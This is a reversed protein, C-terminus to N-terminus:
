INLNPPNHNNIVNYINISTDTDFVIESLNVINEIYKLNLKRLLKKYNKINFFNNNILSEISIIEYDVKNFGDRHYKKTNKDLELMKLNHNYYEHNNKTTKHYLEKWSFDKRKINIKKKSCRVMLSDDESGWGWFNNGYGNIKVYDHKLFIWCGGSFGKYNNENMQQKKAKFYSNNKILNGTISYKYCNEDLCFYDVDHIIIYDVKNFLIDVGINLMLGRNFPKSDDQNVIAIEYEIDLKDLRSKIIPLSIKLNNLRNRYPIVFGCKM